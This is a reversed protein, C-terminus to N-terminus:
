GAPRRSPDHRSEAQVPWRRRDLAAGVARRPFCDVTSEDRRVGTMLVPPKWGVAAADKSIQALERENALRKWDTTCDRRSDPFPPLARGGIVRVAFSDWFAPRAVRVIVEIGKARGFHELKRLESRALCHIEPNGVGVDAHAVIVRVRVVAGVLDAAAALTLNALASSDKGASFLVVLPHGDRAM